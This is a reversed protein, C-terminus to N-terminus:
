VEDDEDLDLPEPGLLGGGLAAALPLLFGIGGTLFGMGELFYVRPPCVFGGM